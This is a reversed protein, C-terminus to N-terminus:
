PFSVFISTIATNYSELVLPLLTPFHQQAIQGVHATGGQSLLAVQSANLGAHNTLQQTLVSRFVVGGVVQTFTAGLYQAFLNLAIGVPLLDPRDKLALQVTLSPMQQAMGVGLGQIM